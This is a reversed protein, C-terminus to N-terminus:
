LCFKRNRIFYFINNYFDLNHYTFEFSDAYWKFIFYFPFRYNCEKNSIKRLDFPANNAGLVFNYDDFIVLDFIKAATM